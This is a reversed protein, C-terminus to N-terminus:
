WIRGAPRHRRLLIDVSRNTFIANAISLRTSPDTKLLAEKLKKYYANIETDDYGNLNLAELMATKTDGMAGSSTMALAMSLSLPSVMFNADDDKAEELYVNEFFEFAFAQDAGIMEQEAARLEIRIPDPLEGKPVDHNNKDCSAAMLASVATIFFFFNFTPKMRKM